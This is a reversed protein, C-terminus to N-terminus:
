QKDGIYKAESFGILMHFLGPLFMLGKKTLIFVNVIPIFALIGSVGMKAFMKWLGIAFILYFIITAVIMGTSFILTFLNTLFDNNM